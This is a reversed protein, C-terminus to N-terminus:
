PKKESGLDLPEANTRSWRLLVPIWVTAERGLVVGAFAKGLNLWGAKTHMNFTAPILAMLVSNTLIANVANKATIILFRKV